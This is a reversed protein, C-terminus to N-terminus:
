TPRWRQGKRRRALKRERKREREREIYRDIKREKKREEFYLGALEDLCLVQLRPGAELGHVAVLEHACRGLHGAGLGLLVLGEADDRGPALLIEHGDTAHHTRLAPLPLIFPNHHAMYWRAYKHWFTGSVKRRRKKYEKPGVVLSAGAVSAFLSVWSMLLAGRATAFPGGDRLIFANRAFPLAFFTGFASAFFFAPAFFHYSFLVFCCLAQWQWPRQKM